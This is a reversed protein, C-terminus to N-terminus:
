RGRLESSFQAPGIQPRPTSLIAQHPPINACPRDAIKGVRYGMRPEVAYAVAFIGDGVKGVGSVGPSESGVANKAPFQKALIREPRAVAERHRRTRGERRVRHRQPSVAATERPASEAHSKAPFQEAPVAADTDADVRVAHRRTVAETIADDYARIARKRRSRARREYRDMAALERILDALIVAMKEADRPRRELIARAMDPPIRTVLLRHRALRVWRLDFQARAIRRALVLAWPPLSVVDAAGPTAADAAGCIRRAVAEIEAAVSAEFAAAVSLGHRLANQAVRRMGAETRPGRRVAVDPHDPRLTRKKRPRNTLPKAM